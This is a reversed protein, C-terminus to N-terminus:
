QFIVGKAGKHELSGRWVGSGIPRRREPRYMKNQGDMQHYLLARMLMRYWQDTHQFATLVFLVLGDWGFLRMTDVPANLRNHVMAVAFMAILLYAITMSEHAAFM